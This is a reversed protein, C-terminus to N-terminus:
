IRSLADNYNKIRASAQWIRKKIRNSSKKEKELLFPIRTRKKKKM